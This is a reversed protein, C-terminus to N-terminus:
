NCQNVPREEIRKTVLDYIGTDGIFDCLEVMMTIKPFCRGEEWAAYRSLQIGMGDAMEQQSKKMRRRITILNDRFITTTM